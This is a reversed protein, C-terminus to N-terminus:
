LCMAVESCTSVWRLSAVTCAWVSSWVTMVVTLRDLSSRGVSNGSLRMWWLHVPFHWQFLGCNNCSYTSAYSFEFVRILNNKYIVLLGMVISFWWVLNWSVTHFTSLTLGVASLTSMIISQILLGVGALYDTYRCCKGGVTYVHTHVLEGQSVVSNVWWWEYKQFHYLWYAAHVHM